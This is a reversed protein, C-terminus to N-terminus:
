KGAEELKKLYAEAAQLEERLAEIHEAVAEKEEDASPQEWWPPV